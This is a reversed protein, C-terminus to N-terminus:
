SHTHSQQPVHVYYYGITLAAEPPPCGVGFFGSTSTLTPTSSVDGHAPPIRRQPTLTIAGKYVTHHPAAGGVKYGCDLILTPGALLKTFVAFQEVFRTLSCHVQAQM